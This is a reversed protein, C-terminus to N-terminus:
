VSFFFFQSLCCWVIFKQQMLILPNIATFKQICAKKAHVSVDMSYVIIIYM